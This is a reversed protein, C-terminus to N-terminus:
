QLCRVVTRRDERDTLLTKCKVANELTLPWCKRAAHLSQPQEDYGAHKTNPYVFAINTIYRMSVGGITIANSLTMYKSNKRRKVSPISLFSLYSYVCLYWLSIRRVTHPYSILCYNGTHTKGCSSSAFHKRPLKLPSCYM